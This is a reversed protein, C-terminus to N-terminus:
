STSATGRKSPRRSPTGTRASSKASASSEGVPLGTVAAMAQNFLENTDALSPGTSLFRNWGEEGLMTKCMRLTLQAASQPNAPDVDGVSLILDLPIEQALEFVEGAFEIYVPKKGAAELRARKAEDLSIVTAGKPAKKGKTAM